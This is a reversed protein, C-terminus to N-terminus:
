RHLHSAYILFVLACPVITLNTVPESAKALVLALQRNSIGLDPNPILEQLQHVLKRFRHQEYCTRHFLSFTVLLAGVSVLWLAVRWGYSLTTPGVLFPVPQLCIAILMLVSVLGVVVFGSHPLRRDVFRLSKLVWRRLLSKEESQADESRQQPSTLDRQLYEAFPQV